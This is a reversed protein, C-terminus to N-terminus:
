ILPPEGRIDVADLGVRRAKKVASKNQIKKVNRIGRQQALIEQRAAQATGGRLNSGAKVEVIAVIEGDDNRLVHDIEPDKNCVTCAWECSYDGPSRLGPSSKRNHRGARLEAYIGKANLPNKEARSIEGEEMTTWDDHDSPVPQDAFKCVDRHPCQPPPPGSPTTQAEGTPAPPTAPADSGHNSTTIDLHRCVNKGDFKVDMSWAQFYTKGTIQHTVVNGGFSRTAAEDGLAAPKYYSQQALAAPKGGIRVTKSGKKLDTSFSSDPYPVPVPGAPPAPPSMCVDPFRAISKNMGNKAAIEWTGAFVKKTM